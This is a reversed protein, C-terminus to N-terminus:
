QIVELFGTKKIVIGGTQIEISYFYTGTPVIKGSENTGDWYVGMNDYGSREFIKNGWRDLVVVTNADSKEINALLWWDNIGDGDPTLVQPVILEVEVPDPDTPVIEVVDVTFTCTSKKGFDDVFDYQVITTGLDFTAGPLHTRTMEVDGCKVTATPEIWSVAAQGNDDATITTDAPCGTIIPNDANVVTVNFTCTKKNGSPDTATYTVPTSGLEFTSGSVPTSEITVNCNDSASPANWSVVAKCSGNAVAIIDVPCTISPATKDSITVTFTCISTNGYIDKATYKVHTVGPRFEEGPEHTSAFSAMSCNDSVTPKIWPVSVTCKDSPLDMAVNSPCGQIEPAIKDTLSAPCCIPGGSKSVAARVIFKGVAKGIVFGSCASGITANLTGNISVNIDPGAFKDNIISGTFTFTKGPEVDENFVAGIQDTVIINSTITGTFELTLSTLGGSCPACSTAAPCDCSQSSASFWAPLLVILLALFKPGFVPSGIRKM